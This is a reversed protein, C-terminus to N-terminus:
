ILFGAYNHLLEVNNHVTSADCRHRDQPVISFSYIRFSVFVFSHGTICIPWSCYVREKRFFLFVPYYTLSLEPAQGIRM